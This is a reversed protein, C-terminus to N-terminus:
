DRQAFAECRGRLDTRQVDACLRYSEAKDLRKAHASVGMMCSDRYASLAMCFSRSSSVSQKEAVAWGVGHFCNEPYLANHDPVRGCLGVAASPNTRGLYKGLGHFCTKRQLATGEERKCWALADGSDVQAIEGNVDHRCFDTWMGAKSCTDRAYVFDHQSWALAINFWCQDHWRRKQITPCLGEAASRDIRTHLGAVDGVCEALLQAEGIAECAEIAGRLDREARQIALMGFCADRFDVSEREACNEWILPTDGESDTSPKAGDPKPPIAIAQAREFEELLSSDPLDANAQLASVSGLCFGLCLLYLFSFRVNGM